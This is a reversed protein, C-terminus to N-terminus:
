PVNSYVEFRVRGMYYTEEARFPQFSKGLLKVGNLENWSMLLSSMQDAIYSILEYNKRVEVGDDYEYDQKVFIYATITAKYLSINRSLYGIREEEEIELTIIAEGQLAEPYGAFIWKGNVITPMNAELYQVTKELLTEM